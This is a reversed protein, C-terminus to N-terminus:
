LNSFIKCCTWLRCRFCTQRCFHALITPQTRLPRFRQTSKQLRSVPLHRTSQQNGRKAYRRSLWFYQFWILFQRHLGRPREDSLLCFRLRQSSHLRIHLSNCFGLIFHWLWFLYYVWFFLVVLFILLFQDM